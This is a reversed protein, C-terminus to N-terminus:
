FNHNLTHTELLIGITQLNEVPDGWSRVYFGAVWLSYGLWVWRPKLGDLVRRGEMQLRIKVLDTPSALFQGMAGSIM